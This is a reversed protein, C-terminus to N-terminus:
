LPPMREYVSLSNILMIHVPDSIRHKVTEYLAWLRTVFTWLHCLLSGIASQFNQLLFKQEIEVIKLTVLSCRFDGFSVTVSSCQKRKLTEVEARCM